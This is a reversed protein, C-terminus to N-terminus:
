LPLPAEPINQHVFSTLARRRSFKGRFFQYHEEKIRKLTKGSCEGYILDNFVITNKWALGDGGQITEVDFLHYLPM